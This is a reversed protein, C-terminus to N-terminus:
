SIDLGLEEILLDIFEYQDVDLIVVNHNLWWQKLNSWASETMGDPKRQVAYSKMVTKKHAKQVASRFLVRFNWDELSYGFFLISSAFIKSIVGQPLYDEVQTYALFDIYDDITIVLSDRESASDGLKDISGHMKYLVLQENLNAPDRCKRDPFQVVTEFQDDGRIEKLAKEILLDYNTTVILKVPELSACFRQIESCQYEARDLHDKLLDLLEPRSTHTEFHQAVVALNKEGNITFGLHQILIDALGKPDPPCNVNQENISGYAGCFIVCRGDVLKDLLPKVHDKWEM